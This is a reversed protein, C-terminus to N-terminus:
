RLAIPVLSTINFFADYHTLNSRVLHFISPCDLSLVCMMSIGGGGGFIWVDDLYVCRCWFLIWLFSLFFSIWSTPWVLDFLLRSADICYMKLTVNFPLLSMLGIIIFLAMRINEENSHSSLFSTSFSFLTTSPIVTFNLSSCALLTVSM